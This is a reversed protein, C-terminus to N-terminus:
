APRHSTHNQRAHGPWARARAPAPCAFLAAAPLSASERRRGLLGPPTLHALYNKESHKHDCGDHYNLHQLRDDSNQWPPYQADHPNQRQRSPDPCVPLLRRSLDYAPARGRCKAMTAIKCRPLGTRPPISRPMCPISPNLYVM